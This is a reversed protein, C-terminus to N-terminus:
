APVQVPQAEAAEAAVAGDPAAAAVAADRNKAEADKAAKRARKWTVSRGNEACTCRRADARM